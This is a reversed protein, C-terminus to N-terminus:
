VTVALGNLQVWGYACRDRMKKVTSLAMDVMPRIKM